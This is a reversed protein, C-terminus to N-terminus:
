KREIKYRQFTTPDLRLTKYILADSDVVPEGLPKYCEKADSAFGRHAVDESRKAKEAVIQKQERSNYRNETRINVKEPEYQQTRLHSYDVIAQRVQFSLNGSDRNEQKQGHYVGHIGHYGGRQRSSPKPEAAPAAPTPNTTPAPNHALLAESLNLKVNPPM